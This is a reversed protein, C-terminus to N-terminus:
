MTGRSATAAPPAVAKEALYHATVEDTILTTIYGGRLMALIIEHKAPGGGLCIREPIRKLRELPLSITTLRGQLDLINGESDLFHCLLDGVAGRSLLWLREERSIANLRELTSNDSLEGGSFLAVRAHSALELTEQLSEERLLLASVEPDRVFAPAQLMYVAAHWRQGLRFAIDYPNATHISGQIGGLISIITLDMAPQPPLLDVAYSLTTGWSIAISDGRRPTFVSGLERALLIKQEEADAVTQVVYVRNLNLPRYLTQLREALALLNIPANIKIQVLGRARAEKLLRVVRARSMDLKRAIEDQTYDQEYYLWACRIIEDQSYRSARMPM